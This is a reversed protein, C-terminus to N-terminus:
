AATCTARTPGFKGTARYPPRSMPSMVCTVYELFPSASGLEAALLQDLETFLEEIPGDGFSSPPTPDSM